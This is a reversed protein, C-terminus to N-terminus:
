KSQANNEVSVMFGEHLSVRSTPNTISAEPLMPNSLKELSFFKTFNTELRM